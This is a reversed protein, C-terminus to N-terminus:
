SYLGWLSGNTSIYTKLKNASIALCVTAPNWRHLPCSSSCVKPSPSSCLPRDKQLGHPWLSDSLVPRSFLFMSLKRLFQCIRKWLSQTMKGKKDATFLLEREQVDEGTHLTTLTKAAKSNSYTITTWGNRGTQSKVVEQVAAPWTERYRVMERLKSLSLDMSDTIGDLWRTRQWGRRRRGETKGLMLTKELSDNRRM